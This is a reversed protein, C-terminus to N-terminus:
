KPLAIAELRAVVQMQQETIRSVENRLILCSQEPTATKLRASLQNARTQGEPSLTAVYAALKRKLKWVRYFNFM